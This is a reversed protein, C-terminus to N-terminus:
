APVPEFPQTRLPFRECDPLGSSSALGWMGANPKMCISSACRMQSPLGLPTGDPKGECILHAELMQMFGFWPMHPNALLMPSGSETRKGSLVWGNSGTAAYIQPNRRPLYEDGLGTFRFSMELAIHRYHALVHWPEFHKILRPKVKPNTALYHNIGGVFATYLRQSLVDLAAFDRQSTRVIEFSRNLLDSNLGKPGVVESYRGLALIYSDEVQWFYDEAQAYGYGFIVSEDTPGVIHPVGYKDRHITVERALAAPDLQESNTQANISSAVCLSIAALYLLSHRRPLM